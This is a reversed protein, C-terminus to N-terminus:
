LTEASKFYIRTPFSIKSEGLTALVWFSRLDENVSSNRLRSYVGAVASSCLTMYAFTKM